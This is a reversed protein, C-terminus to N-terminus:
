TLTELFLAFAQRRLRCEEARVGGRGDSEMLEGIGVGDEGIMYADVRRHRSEANRDRLSARAPYCARHM